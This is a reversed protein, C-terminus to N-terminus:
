TPAVYATIIGNTFTLSGDTGLATIKALTATGSIGINQSAMTGFTDAPQLQLAELQKQLEATLETCPCVIQSALAELQKQLEAVQSLLASSQDVLGAAEIQKALEASSEVQVPLTGVDQALAQLAADYSAILSESSSGIAPDDIVSNAVNNLSLFFLYWARDILGTRPDILPVRPPTISTNLM